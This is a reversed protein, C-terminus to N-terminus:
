FAGSCLVSNRDFVFLAWWTVAVDVPFVGSTGVPAGAGEGHGSGTGRGLGSLAEM